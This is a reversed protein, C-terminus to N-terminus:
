LYAVVLLIAEDNGHLRWWSKTGSVTCVVYHCCFMRGVSTGDNRREGDKGGLVIQGVAWVELLQSHQELRLIGQPGSFVCM